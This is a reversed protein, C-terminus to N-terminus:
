SQNEKRYGIIDRLGSIESGDGPLIFGIEDTSPLNYRRHDTSISYHLYAPVNFNENNGAADQLVEYAHRYFESFPNCQVLTDQIVKLVDRNLHPDRKHRTNLSVGPNYVYLQAYSEEYEENPVLIGIRHYLENHIVFSTPGRGHAVRNDMHVGLSTFANAQLCCQGFLPKIISSKSLQGDKLHLASCHTCVVDMQGLFHRGLQVGEDNGNINDEDVENVNNNGKDDISHEDDNEVRNYYLAEVDHHV